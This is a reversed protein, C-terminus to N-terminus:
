VVTPEPTSVFNCDLNKIEAREEAEAVEVELNKELKKHLYKSVFVLMDLTIDLIRLRLNKKFSVFMYKLPHKIKYIRGFLESCNFVLDLLSSKEPLSSLSIIEKRFREKSFGFQPYDPLEALPTVKIRKIDFGYVGVISGVRSLYFAINPYDILTKEEDLIRSSVLALEKFINAKEKEVKLFYRFKLVEAYSLLGFFLLLASFFIAYSIIQIYIKAM